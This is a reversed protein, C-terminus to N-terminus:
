HRTQQGFYARILENSIEMGPNVRGSRNYVVDWPGGKEHSLSVLKGVGFHGYKSFQDEIFILDENSVSDECLVKQLKDVDFRSARGKIESAGFRKFESYIERIVPGYDWAEIKADVLPEGTKALYWAHIFYVIKNLSLNSLSIGRTDAIDLIINAISRPDYAM